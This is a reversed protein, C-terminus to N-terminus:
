NLVMILVVILILILIITFLSGIGKSVVDGFSGGGAMAGLIIIVVLLGVLFEM